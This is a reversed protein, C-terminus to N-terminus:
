LSYHNISNRKIGYRKIIIENLYILIPICKKLTKKNLKAEKTKEIIKFSYNQNFIPLIM